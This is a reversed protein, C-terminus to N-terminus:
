IDNSFRLLLLIELSHYVNSYLSDTIEHYKKNTFVPPWFKWIVVPRNSPVTESMCVALLSKTDVLDDAVSSVCFNMDKPRPCSSIIVSDPAFRGKQKQSSRDIGEILNVLISACDDTFTMQQTCWLHYLVCLLLKM